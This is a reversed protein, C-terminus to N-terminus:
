IPYISSPKRIFLLGGQQAIHEEGRIHRGAVRIRLPCLVAAQAGEEFVGLLHLHFRFVVLEADPIQQVSRGLRQTEAQLFFLSGICCFHLAGFSAASKTQSLINNRRSGWIHTM